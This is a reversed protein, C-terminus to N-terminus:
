CEVCKCCSIYLVAQVAACEMGGSSYCLQEVQVNCGSWTVTVTRLILYVSCTAEGGDCGWQPAVM